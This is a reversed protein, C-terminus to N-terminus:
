LGLIEDCFKDLIIDLVKNYDNGIRKRSYAVIMCTKVLSNLFEISINIKINSIELLKKIHEEDSHYHTELIDNPIKRLLYELENEMFSIVGLHEMNKFAFSFAMHLKEKDTLHKNAKLMEEIGGYIETHFEELVDFFLMEKSIYFKYFMGKSIGVNKVIEDVSTKKMGSTCVIEKAISILKNNIEKKEKESFAAGM